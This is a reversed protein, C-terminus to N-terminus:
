QKARFIFFFTTLLLVISLFYFVMPIRSKFSIEDLNEMQFFQVLEESCAMTVDSNLRNWAVSLDANSALLGDLGKALNEPLDMQLPRPVNMGASASDLLAYLAFLTNSPLGEMQAILSDRSLFWANRNIFYWAIGSMKRSVEREFRSVSSAPPAKIKIDKLGDMDHSFTSAIERLVMIQSQVAASDTMRGMRVREMSRMLRTELLQYESINKIYKSYLVIEPKQSVYFLATLGLTLVLILWVWPAQLRSKLTEAVTKKKLDEV